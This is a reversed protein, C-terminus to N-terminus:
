RVRPAAGETTGRMPRPLGGAEFLGFSSGGPATAPPENLSPESPEAWQFMWVPIVGKGSWKLLGTVIFSVMCVVVVLYLLKQGTNYKGQPPMAEEDGLLFVHCVECAVKGDHLKHELIDTEEPTAELRCELCDVGPPGDYRHAYETGDGHYHTIDHCEYCAMGAELWHVSGEVGENKGHYGDAARAGHCALCTDRISATARVTHERLLGGGLATPRSIHCQGCTTHCDDCHNAFAELM